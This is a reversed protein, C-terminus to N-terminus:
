FQSESWENNLTAWLSNQNCYELYRKFDDEKSKLCGVIEQNYSLDKIRCKAQGARGVIEVELLSRLEPQNLIYLIVAYVDGKWSHVHAKLDLIERTTFKSIPKAEFDSVPWVDDIYIVGGKILCKLSNYLDRYAQSGEHLGDIFILHFEKSNETEFFNDSSKKIISAKSLFNISKCKPFPDVGIKSQAMVSEIVFGEYIGIELYRFNDFNITREGYLVQLSGCITRALTKLLQEVFNMIYNYDHHATYFELM